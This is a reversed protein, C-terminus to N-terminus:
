WQEDWISVNNFDGFVEEKVKSPDSPWDEGDMDGGGSGGTGTVPSQAVMGIAEMELVTTSPEVYKKKKREM